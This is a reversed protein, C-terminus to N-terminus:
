AEEKRKQIAEIVGISLLTMLFGGLLFLTGYIWRIPSYKKQAVEPSSVVSAHTFQRDFQNFALDYQNIFETLGNM